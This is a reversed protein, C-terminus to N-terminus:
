HYVRNWNWYQELDIIDFEYKRCDETIGFVPIKPNEISLKAVHYNTIAYRQDMFHFGSGRSDGSEIQMTANSLKEQITM